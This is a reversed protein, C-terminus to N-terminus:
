IHKWNKRLVIYRIMPSSVGFMKALAPGGFKKSRKIYFMRIFLVDKDTLKARGHDEGRKMRERYVRSPNRDGGLSRGKAVMDKSNTANTGLFLHDPNVCKRNDCKHLVLLNEPVRGIHLEWSFRHARVLTEGVNLYGYGSTFTGGIWEWCKTHLAPCSPGDKNVRDWFRLEPRGYRSEPKNVDHRLLIM